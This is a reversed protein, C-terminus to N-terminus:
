NELHEILDMVKVWLAEEKSLKEAADPIGLRVDEKLNAIRKDIKSLEKKAQYLERKRTKDDGAYKITEQKIQETNQAQTIDAHQKLSWVYEEYNGNYKTINGDKVQWIMTALNNVFSRDHSVFILTGGWEALSSGMIEVTEMDLHNTPEDLILVDYGELFVAALRLRAKEGGSLVSLSKDHESKSFLFSGLTKKVDDDSIEIDAVKRLYDYVTAQDQTDFEVSQAFYGVRLGNGFKFEGSLAKIESSLTKLLTSKGQGNDGLVAVKQGREVYLNQGEAIKTQGYGITINSVDLGMGSSKAIFPLHMRVKSNPTYITRKEQELREIHKQKSKAQAAKTAKAGFRNIFEQLQAQKKEINANTRIIQNQLMQKYEFYADINGPYLTIQGQDVEITSTMVRRLFERDHTILLVTGKFSLLWNELLLITSLDLYNTPEDLLILNPKSMLMKILKLRMRYGGSIDNIPLDLKEKPMDFELAQKIIEWDQAKTTSLLYELGTQNLDFDDEQAIYGIRATKDLTIDGDDSEELGLIMRFLTSKGAGNRGLVGYIEGEHISCNATNFIVKLGYNKELNYIRILEKKAM